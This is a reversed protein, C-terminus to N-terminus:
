LNTAIKWFWQPRHYSGLPNWAEMRKSLRKMGSDPPFPPYASKKRNCRKNGSTHFQSATVVNPLPESKELIQTAVSKQDQIRSILRKTRPLFVSPCIRFLNKRPRPQRLPTYGLFLVLQNKLSKQAKKLKRLFRRLKCLTSLSCISVDGAFFLLPLWLSKNLMHSFYRNEDGGIGYTAPVPHVLKGSSKALILAPKKKQLAFIKDM